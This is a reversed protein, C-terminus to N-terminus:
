ACVLCRLAITNDNLFEDVSFTAWRLSEEEVRVTVIRGERALKIEYFYGRPTETYHNNLKPHYKYIFVDEAIRADRSNGAYAIKCYKADKTPNYTFCSCPRGAGKLHDCIRKSPNTTSGIYVPNMSEDLFMYVFGFECMKKTGKNGQYYMTFIDMTDPGKENVCFRSFM